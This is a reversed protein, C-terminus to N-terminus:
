AVAGQEKVKVLEDKKLDNHCCYFKAVNEAVDVSHTLLYYTNLLYYTLLLDSTLFYYTLILYTNLLYYTLLLYTLLYALTWRHYGQGGM